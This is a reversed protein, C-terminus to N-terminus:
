KLRRDEKIPGEGFIFAQWSLKELFPFIMFFKQDLKELFNLIKKFYRTKSFPIALFSFFYYYEIKIKNFNEKILKLDKYRLPHESPTRIKPTLKRYINIFPNMGLPEIFIIKGDPKLIRKIEKLADELYLHHLISNGFIVDFCSDEFNMNEANMVYFFVNKAKKITSEAKAIKIGQPSLDIGIVKNAGYESIKISDKGTGCGIELVDKNLCCDKLKSYYKEKISSAILYFKSVGPREGLTYKFDFFDKEENKM